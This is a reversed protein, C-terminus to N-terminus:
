MYLYKPHYGGRLDLPTRVESFWIKEWFTSLETHSVFRRMSFIRNWAHSLVRKPIGAIEWHVRDDTRENKVDYPMNVNHHVVFIILRKFMESMDKAWQVTERHHNSLGKRIERDMYNAAFVPNKMTRAIRSNTRHHRWERTTLLDSLEKSSGFSRVYDYKEDTYLTLTNMSSVSYMKKMLFLLETFSKRIGGTEAKWMEEVIERREKQRATMRGKRRITVGNLFYLVRSKAGVLLHINNPFYQSYCFSEFGDAVLDESLDCHSMIEMHMAMCQRAIRGIRNQIADTGLNLSRAIDRVGASSVVHNFIQAYDCQKKAYYDLHFTQSSFEKRCHACRYRQIRGFCKTKYFGNRTFWRFPYQKQDHYTCEKNPCFPPIFM